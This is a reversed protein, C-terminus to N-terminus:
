FLGVYKGFSKLEYTDVHAGVAITGGHGLMLKEFMPRRRDDDAVDCFEYSKHLEIGTKNGIKFDPNCWEPFQEALLVGHSNPGLPGLFRFSCPIIHSMCHELVRAQSTKVM